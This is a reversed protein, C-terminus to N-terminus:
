EVQWKATFRKKKDLDSAGAQLPSLAVDVKSGQRAAPAPTSVIHVTEPAVDAGCFAKEAEEVKRRLADLQRQQETRAFAAHEGKQQQAEMDQLKRQLRAIQL